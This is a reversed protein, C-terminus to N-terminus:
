GIQFSLWKFQWTQGGDQVIAYNLETIMSTFFESHWRLSHVSMCRCFKWHYLCHNQMCQMKLLDTDAVFEGAPYACLMVSRNLVKNLALKMSTNLQENRFLFYIKIYTGVVKALTKFICKEHQRGKVSSV